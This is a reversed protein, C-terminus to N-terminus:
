LLAWSLTSSAALSPPTWSQGSALGAMTVVFLGGCPRQNPSDWSSWPPLRTRLGDEAGGTIGLVPYEYSEHRQMWYTPLQLEGSELGLPSTLRQLEDISFTVNM